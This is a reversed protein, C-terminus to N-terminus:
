LKESGKAKAQSKMKEGAEFEKVKSAMKTRVAEPTIESEKLSATKGPHDPHEFMHVGSGKTLEGKYKLGEKEIIDKPSASPEIKKTEPNFKHTPEKKGFVEKHYSEIGKKTTPSEEGAVHKPGDKTVQYGAEGPQLNFDPTKGQDTLAGSKSVKVFRGSRNLEEVSAVGGGAHGGQPMSIIEHGELKEFQKALSGEESMEPPIAMAGLTEGVTGGVPVMKLAGGAAALLPTHTALGKEVLDDGMKDLGQRFPKLVADNLDKTHEDLFKKAKGYARQLPHGYAENYEDEGQQQPSKDATLRQDTPLASRSTDPEPTLNRKVTQVLSEKEDAM